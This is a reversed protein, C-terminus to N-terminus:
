ATRAKKEPLILLLFVGLCIFADALNFSPYHWSLIIVDIFDIVAGHIFRDILNGIAGGIVLGIALWLNPTTSRYFWVILAAIISLSLAVFVWQKQTPNNFTGFSVGYNKVLSFNLFSSFHLPQKDALVELIFFKSLQDAVIVALIVIALLV